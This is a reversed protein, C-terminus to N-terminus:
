LSCPPLWKAAPIVYKETRERMGMINITKAPKPKTRAPFSAAMSLTSCCIRSSPVLPRLSVSCVSTSVATSRRLEMPTIPRKVASQVPRPQIPLRRRPTESIHFTFIAGSLKTFPFSDSRIPRIPSNTAKTAAKTTVAIPEDLRVLFNRSYM